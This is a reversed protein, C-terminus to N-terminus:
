GGAKLSISLPQWKSALLMPGTFGCYSQGARIETEEQIAINLEYALHGADVSERYQVAAQDSAWTLQGRFMGSDVRM